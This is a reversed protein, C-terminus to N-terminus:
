GDRDSPLKVSRCKQRVNRSISICAEGAVSMRLSRRPGSGGEASASEYGVRRHSPPVGRPEGLEGGDSHVASAPAGAPLPTDVCGVLALLVVVKMGM